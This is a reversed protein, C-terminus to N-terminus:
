VMPLADGSPLQLVGPALVLAYLARTRARHSAIIGTPDASGYIVESLAATSEHGFKRWSAVVASLAGAKSRGISRLTSTITVVISEVGKHIMAGRLVGVLRPLLLLCFTGELM